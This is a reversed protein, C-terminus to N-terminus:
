KFFVRIITEHRVMRPLGLPMRRAIRSLMALRIASPNGLIHRVHLGVYMPFAPGPVRYLRICMRVWIQFVTMLAAPSVLFVIYKLQFRFLVFLYLLYKFM